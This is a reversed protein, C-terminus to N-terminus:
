KGFMAADKSAKWDPLISGDKGHVGIEAVTNGKFLLPVKWEGSKGLQPSGVELHPILEQVTKVAQEPTVSIKQIQLGQKKAMIEGTSPNLTVRAVIKDALLLPVELKVEGRKGQKTWGKSVSLKTLASRVSAAADEANIHPQIQYGEGKNKNAHLPLTVTFMLGIVLAAFASKRIKKMQNERTGGPLLKKSLM